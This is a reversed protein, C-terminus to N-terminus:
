KAMRQSGEGTRQDGEKKGERGRGPLMKVKETNHREDEQSEEVGCHTDGERQCQSAM